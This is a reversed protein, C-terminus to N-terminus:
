ASRETARASLKAVEQELRRVTNLLEPLRKYAASGKLWTKHEVAPAGSYLSNPPIDSSVGSQPTLMSGNGVALHGSLGVQGGLICNNGVRTTGAM